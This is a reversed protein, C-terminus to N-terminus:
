SLCPGAPGSVESILIQGPKFLGKSTAGRDLKCNLWYNTITTTCHVVHMAPAPAPPSGLRNHGLSVPRRPSIAENFSSLWQANHMTCFAQDFWVFFPSAAACASRLVIMQLLHHCPPMYCMAISYKERTQSKFYLMVILLSIWIDVNDTLCCDDLQYTGHYSISHFPM